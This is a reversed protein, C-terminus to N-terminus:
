PPQNQEPVLIRNKRLFTVEAALMEAGYNAEELNLPLESARDPDSERLKTEIGHKILKSRNAIQQHQKWYDILEILDQPRGSFIEAEAREIATLFPDIEQVGYAQSFTRRQDQDLPCLAFIEPEVHKPEGKHAPLAKNQFSKSLATTNEEGQEETFEIPKIFPITNKIFSLYSQPEWESIRSTIFIHAREKHDGLKVGFKRIATEFQKPGCLKAEDVSDLFFWGFEERNKWDDFELLTGTEDFAGEFDSGLHELRFFFAAKGEDHLRRAIAKVEDTKGAGAEALIIVRSLELLDSWKKTESLGFIHSLDYEDENFTHDKSIPVFTRNLEIFNIPM